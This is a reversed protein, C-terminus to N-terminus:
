HGHGCGCGGHAPKSNPNTIKFGAAPFADVFDIEAGKFEEAELKSFVFKVGNSEDVIDQEDVQNELAMSYSPGSCGCGGQGISLRVYGEPVGQRSLVEKIKGAAADTIKLYDLRQMRKIDLEM